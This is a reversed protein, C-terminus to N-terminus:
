WARIDSSNVIAFLKKLIFLERDRNTTGIEFLRSLPPACGMEGQRKNSRPTAFIMRM